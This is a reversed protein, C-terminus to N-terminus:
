KIGCVSRDLQVKLLEGTLHLEESLGHQYGLPLILSQWGLLYQGEAVYLVGIGRGGVM